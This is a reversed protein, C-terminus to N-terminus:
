CRKITAIKELFTSRREEQYFRLFAADANAKLKDLEGRNQMDFGTGHQIIVPIQAGIDVVSFGEPNTQREVIRGTELGGLQYYLM